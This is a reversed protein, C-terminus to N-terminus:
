TLLQPVFMGLPFTPYHEDIPDFCRSYDCYYYDPIMGNPIDRKGWQYSTTQLLNGALDYVARSNLLGTM